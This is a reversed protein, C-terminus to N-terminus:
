FGIGKLGKSDLKDAYIKLARKLDADDVLSPSSLLMAEHLPLESLSESNQILFLHEQAKDELALEIVAKVDAGSIEGLDFDISSLNKIDFKPACHDYEM